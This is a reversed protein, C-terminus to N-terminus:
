KSLHIAAKMSMEQLGIPCGCNCCYHVGYGSDSHGNRERKLRARRDKQYQRRHLIQEETLPKKGNSRRPQNKVNGHVRGKHMRVAREAEIKTPKSFEKGCEECAIRM